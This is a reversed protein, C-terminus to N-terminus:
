QNAIAVSFTLTDSYDGGAAANWDSQAVQVAVPASGAALFGYANFATGDSALLSYPLEAGDATTLAGSGAALSVQLQRNPALRLSTVAIDFSTELANFEVKVEPPIVVIYDEAIQATIVTSATNGSSSETIETAVAASGCLLCLAMLLVLLKKM